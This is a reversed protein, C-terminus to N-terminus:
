AEKSYVIITSLCKKLRIAKGKVLQPHYRESSPLDKSGGHESVVRGGGKIRISWTMHSRIGPGGVKRMCRLFAPLPRTRLALVYYLVSVNHLTNYRLELLWTPPVLQPKTIVQRIM